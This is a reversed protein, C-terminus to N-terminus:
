QLPKPPLASERVSLVIASWAARRCNVWAPISVCNSLCFGSPTVEFSPMAASAMGEAQTLVIINTRQLTLMRPWEATDKGTM